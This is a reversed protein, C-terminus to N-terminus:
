YFTSNLSEPGYNYGNLTPITIQYDQMCSSCDLVESFQCTRSSAKANQQDENKGQLADRNVGDPTFVSSFFKQVSELEKICSSGLAASVMQFVFTLYLFTFRLLM